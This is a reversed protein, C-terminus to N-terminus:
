ANPLSHNILHGYWDAAASAFFLAGLAGALMFPGFPIASKRNVRRAGMLVGGVLAGLLFASFTAVVVSGWSIWGMYLGLLGALKVDGFGMGGPYALALAFYLAFLGTM